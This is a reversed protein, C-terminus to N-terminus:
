RYLHYKGGQYLMVVDSRLGTKTHSENTIRAIEAEKAKHSKASDMDLTVASLVRETVDEIEWLVNVELQPAKAEDELTAAYFGDKIYDKEPSSLDGLISEAVHHNTALLGNASVFSASGGNNMRVSAKQVHEAWDATPEFDYLKKIRAVPLANLLWMGEDNHLISSTNM